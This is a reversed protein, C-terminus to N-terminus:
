RAAEIARGVGEASLEGDYVKDGIVLGPTGMIGADEGSKYDADVRATAVPDRMTADFAAMDLGLKQADARLDEDAFRPSTQMLLHYMDFYRGQRRAAEAAIAAPKARRHHSIPFDRYYVVISDGYAKEVTEMTPSFDVCHPCEYDFYYSIAVKANPNGVYPRDGAPMAPAAVAQNSVPAPAAGCAAVALVLARM